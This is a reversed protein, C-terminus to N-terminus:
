FPPPAVAAEPSPGRAVSDSESSDAASSKKKKWSDIPDDAFVRHGCNDHSLVVPYDRSQQRIFDRRVLETRGSVRILDFSQKGNLLGNLEEVPSVVGPDVTESVGEAIAVLAWRGCGCRSWRVGTSVLHRDGMARTDRGIQWETLECNWHRERETLRNDLRSGCVRCLAFSHYSPKKM